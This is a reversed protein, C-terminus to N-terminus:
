DSYASQNQPANEIGVWQKYGNINVRFNDGIGAYTPSIVFPNDALYQTAVPVNLEQSYSSTVALLLFCIVIKKMRKKILSSGEFDNSM